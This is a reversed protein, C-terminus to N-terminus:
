VDSGRRRGPGTKRPRRQVKKGERRQESGIAIRGHLLLVM